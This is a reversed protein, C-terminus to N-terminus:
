GRNQARRITWALLARALVAQFLAFLLLSLGLFIGFPVIAWIEGFVSLHLFRLGWDGLGGFGVMLAFASSDPLTLSGNIFIYFGYSFAAMVSFRVIVLLVLALVSYARQRFFSSVLLGLAADFALGTFPLLLGATLMFALLLISAALGLDLDPTIPISMQPIIGSILLDLYEGQFATLDWLIGVILVLRILTVAILLPRLRYFAAAWRTRIALGAGLETARLSDWQQRRVAEGIAGSTLSYTALIIIIQLIFAPAYLLRNASETLNPSLPEALFQTATLFGIAGLVLIAMCIGLWFLVRRRPRRARLEYRLFPHGEKAWDPLPGLLFEIM